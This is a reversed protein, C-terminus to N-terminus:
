TYSTVHINPQSITTFEYQVVIYGLSKLLVLADGGKRSVKTSYRSAVVFRAVRTRYGTPNVKKKKKDQLWQGQGEDCNLLHCACFLNSEERSITMPLLGQNVGGDCWRVM